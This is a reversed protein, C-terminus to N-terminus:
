AGHVFPVYYGADLLAFAAAYRLFARHLPIELLNEPPNELLNEAPNELLNELLNEEPNEPPNEPPEPPARPPRLLAATAVLHLSVASLLLLAGRWGYSDLALQVLPTLALGSVSAGSVAL